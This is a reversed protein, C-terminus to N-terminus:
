KFKEKCFCFFLVKKYMLASIYKLKLIGIMCVVYTHAYVYVYM